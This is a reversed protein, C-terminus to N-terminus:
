PCAGYPVGQLPSCPNGGCNPMGADLNCFAKCTGSTAGQSTVLCLNGRVCGASASCTGNVAVTGNAICAPGSQTLACAQTSACNQLLPDCNALVVCTGAIEQLGPISVYQACQSNPQTCHSQQYCFKACISNICILGKGCQDSAGGCAAGETLSGAPGCARAAGGDALGAYSCKDTTTACNQSVIDCAGSFCAANGAQDMLMCSQGPMCDQSMLSCSTGM